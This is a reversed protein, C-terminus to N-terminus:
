RKKIPIGQAKLEQELLSWINGLENMSSTWIPENNDAGAYRGHPLNDTMAVDLVKQGDWTAWGYKGHEATHKLPTLGQEYSLRSADFYIEAIFGDGVQKVGTRVLSHLLQKTRIYEEPEWSYFKQLFSDIVSYVKEEAQIIANHCKALLFSKLQAENKFIM